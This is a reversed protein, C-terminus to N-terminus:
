APKAVQIWFRSYHKPHLINDCGIFLVFFRQRINGIKEYLAGNLQTRLFGLRLDVLKKFMSIMSYYNNFM